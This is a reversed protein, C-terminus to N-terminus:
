ATSPVTFFLAVVSIWLNTSVAFILTALGFGGVALLLNRWAHKLPPFYVMMFMTLIAGISPTARLIGLGEAGVKLIDEAYIPLLAIVGGFLVSFLDLSISYLIIKTKFVFAIGEKLSQFINVKEEVKEPIPPATITSILLMVTCLLAVVFWLSNTLGWYAYM